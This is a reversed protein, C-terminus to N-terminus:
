NDPVTAHETPTHSSVQTTTPLFSGSGRYPLSRSHDRSELRFPYIYMQMFSHRSAVHPEGTQLASRSSEDGVWGTHSRRGTPAISECQVAMAGHQLVHAAPHLPQQGGATVGLHRPLETTRRLNRLRTKPLEGSVSRGDGEYHHVGRQSLPSGVLNADLPSGRGPDHRCNFRSGPM